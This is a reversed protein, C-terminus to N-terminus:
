LVSVPLRWWRMNGVLVVSEFNNKEMVRVSALNDKDTEATLWKVEPRTRAWQIMGAVAETMFGLGRRSPLTGYGIEIAGEGDPKGKFGLEAVISGSSKEVVLWFTLFLYDTGKMKRLRPLLVENVRDRVDTSVTRGNDKLKFLKELRGNGQLYCDLEEPKLPVIHLRETHVM